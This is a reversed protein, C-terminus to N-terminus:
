FFLATTITFNCRCIFSTDLIIRWAEVLLILHLLEALGGYSCECLLCTPVVHHRIRRGGDLGNLVHGDVRLGVQYLVELPVDVVILLGVEIM